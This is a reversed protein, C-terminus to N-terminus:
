PNTCHSRGLRATGVLKVTLVIALAATIGVSPVLVLSVVVAGLAGGVLDAAYLAGATRAPSQRYVVAAWPFQYGTVTAVGLMLPYL